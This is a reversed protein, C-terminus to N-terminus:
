AWPSEDASPGYISPVPINLMRLYVSLQGRHHYLHNLLISRILALRPMTMIERGGKTLRWQELLFANDMKELLVKAAELRDFSRLIEANTAPLQPPRMSEVDYADASAVAAIDGPLTALHLALEGLTMSRDHPKWSLKDNAVREPIRRTIASEQDLEALIPDILRM